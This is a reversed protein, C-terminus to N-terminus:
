DGDAWIERLLDLLQSALPAGHSDPLVVADIRRTFAPEHIPRTVIDTRQATMALRPVVAVGVNAAVLGQVSQYDETRFVINPEFGAIRCMVEFATDYPASKHGRVVWAEDAVDSLRLPGPEGALPHDCPLLLCLPDKRLHLCRLSGMPRPLFDYDWSLGVDIVGEALEASLNEPQSDHLTLRTEPHRQRYRQVVTPVLYAGATSFVGLTVNTPPVVMRHLDQELNAMERLLAQARDVLLNGVDTPRVGRSLRELLPAGIERELIAVQQSVASQTLHLQGAAATISGEEAVVCFIRLRRADLM